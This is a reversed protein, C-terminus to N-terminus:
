GQAQEFRALAQPDRLTESTLQVEGAKSRAEAVATFTEQEFEAAGKVTEVLNPILDMRRQYNNEVQSWASTVAEDFGVFGNYIGKGWMFAGGLVVVVVLLVILAVKM